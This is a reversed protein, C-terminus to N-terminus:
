GRFRYITQKPDGVCFFSGLKGGQGAGAMAEDVLPQVLKWQVDSTDQFEDILIHELRGDLRFYLYDNGVAGLETEPRCMMNYAAYTVDSFSLVGNDAKMGDIVDQVKVAVHLLLALDLRDAYDVYNSLYGKFDDYDRRYEEPMPERGNLAKQTREPNFYDIYRMCNEINTKGAAVAEFLPLQKLFIKSIKRWKGQEKITTLLKGMCELLNASNREADELLYEIQEIDMRRADDLQQEITVARELVFNIINDRLNTLFTKPVIDAWAIYRNFLSHYKDNNFYLQFALEFAERKVASTSAPDLIDFDPSVDSEFPFLRLIMNVFSDITRVQLVSPDKYLLSLVASARKRMEEPAKIKLVDAVAKYESTSEDLQGNALKMLYENVRTAMEATAKRTFTICLIKGVSQGIISGANDGALDYVPRRVIKDQMLTAVARLALTYTKGIGASAMLAVSYAPDISRSHKTQRAM